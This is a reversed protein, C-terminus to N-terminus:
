KTTWCNTTIKTNKHSFTLKLGEIGGDSDQRKKQTKLHSFSMFFYNKLFNTQTIPDVSHSKTLPLCSLSINVSNTHLSGLRHGDISLSVPSFSYDSYPTLEHLVTCKYSVSLCQTSWYSPSMEPHCSPVAFSSTVFALKIHPSLPSTGAMEKSYKSHPNQPALLLYFIQYQFSSFGTSM